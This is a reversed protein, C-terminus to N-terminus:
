FEDVIGNAPDEVRSESNWEVGPTDGVAFVVSGGSMQSLILNKDGLSTRENAERGEIRGV